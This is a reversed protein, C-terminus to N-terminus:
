AHCFNNASSWKIAPQKWKFEFIVKSFCNRELYTFVEHLVVSRNAKVCVLGAGTLLGTIEHLWSRLNCLEFESSVLVVYLVPDLFLEYGVWSYECWFKNAMMQLNGTGWFTNKCTSCGVSSSSWKYFWILILTIHFHRQTSMLHKYNSVMIEGVKFFQVYSLPLSWTM